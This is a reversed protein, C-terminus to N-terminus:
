NTNRIKGTRGRYFDFIGNMVAKAWIKKSPFFLLKIIQKFFIWVSLFYVCIRILFSGNRKALYLGNRTHYYIYSFSNEKASRSAKHYIKANPAVMIKWGNKRAKLNWDTDEYYLFYGNWMLRIKEIVEKKILLACGTFYDSEFPKDQLNKDLEDYHIHTGKNLLWNIKGGFFWIRDKFDYFNIKPGIIGIKKDSESIKILESLFDPEVITDNNLLFIYDTGSELANKIGVNNGGAFGLNSNLALFKIKRNQASQNIYEKIREVSDDESGNDVLIIEYNQYDIEALSNLCEKTDQWGNWNLVIISVKPYEM